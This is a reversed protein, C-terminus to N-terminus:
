GKTKFADIAPLFIHVATGRGPESDVSIWGDHNKVIGYTEAMGLGRGHFKTTFFPEFIRKLTQEDMGKGNDEVSLVVYYGPYLGNFENAFEETVLKNGCSIRIRGNTEVAESANSIIASLVMQMQTVDAMVHYVKDSLDIEVTISPKLLHEILPLTEKVFECMSLTQIHYQGGQAYALLQRTLRAMRLAATKMQTMIKQSRHDEKMVLDILDIGGTIVALANNFQHAIGGALAAIAEMKHAQELQTQLKEKEQEAQKLESINRTISIICKEGRLDISRSSLLYPSVTNDKSRFYVELDNVQGDRKIIDVFRDRDRKDAWINLEPTTRGIVEDKSFGTDLLFHENVEIMKGDELRTITINNPGAMFARSFRDESERLEQETQKRDTIDNGIAVVGTITGSSDILRDINWLLIKRIGDCAIIETEVGQAPEGGLVKQIHNELGSRLDEPVFSELYNKGFADAKKMGFVNEAGRNFELIRCDTSLVIIVCPAMEFIAHLRETKDELKRILVKNYEKLHEEDTADPEGRPQFGCTKCEEIVTKLIEIFRDPNMPKIIFKEAGLSLAFREDRSDTYTATYFIFPIHKLREDKKWERCLSFGDMVPMLIDTIIMDPPNARAKDLAEAGNLASTVTYGASVLIGELLYLNLKMDDVILINLADGKATYTVKTETITKPSGTQIIREQFNKCLTRM